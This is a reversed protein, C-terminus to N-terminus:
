TKPLSKLLSKRKDTSLMTFRSPTWGKCDNCQYLQFKSVNTSYFSNTLQVNESGCLHCCEKNSDSYVGANPHTRMYPRLKIYTDALIQVDMKNYVFMEHLAEKREKKNGFTCNHWLEADTHIKAGIDYFRSIYDLRNSTHGTIKKVHELTDISRYPSHPPLGNKIMRVNFKKADFKKLNHAVVYDANHFNDWLSQVIRKDDGKKAEEHTLKDGFVTDDEGLWMGAWTLLHWDRHIATHPTYKSWLSFTEILMFSTEIDFIFIRPLNSSPEKKSQKAFRIYREITGLKSIGTKKEVLEVGGKEFLEKVYLCKEKGAPM